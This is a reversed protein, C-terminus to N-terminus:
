RPIDACRSAEVIGAALSAAVDDRRNLYKQLCSYNDIFCVELLVAPVSGNVITIDGRNMTGGDSLGTSSVLRPHIIANFARSGAAGAPGVMTATTTGGDADFHVSLVLDCGLSRAKANRQWYPVSYDSGNFVRIDTGALEAAIRATLDKTLDAEDRGSGEAGPDYVGWGSANKGHGADLFVTFGYTPTLVFLPKKAKSKPRLALKSSTADVLRGNKASAITFAGSELDLALKWKTAKGSASASQVISKSSAKLYLCSQAGQIRYSKGAKVLRFKQSKANARKKLEIKAGSARSANKVALNKSAYSASRVFYSMGDQLAETQVLRFRQTRKGDQAEELRLELTAGTRVVCLALEPAAASKFQLKGATTTPCWLQRLTTGRKAQKLKAGARAKGAITLLLRSGLNRITCYGTQKDQVVAWKQSWSADDCADLLIRAGVKTSAGKVSLGYAPKAVNTLCYLGDDITAMDAIPSSEGATAGLQGGKDATLEDSMASIAHAAGTALGGDAAFATGVCM